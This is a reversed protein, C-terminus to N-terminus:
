DDLRATGPVIWVCDTPSVSRQAKPRRAVAFANRHGQRPAHYTVYMAPSRMRNPVAPRILARDARAFARVSSDEARVGENAVANRPPTAERGQSSRASGSFM